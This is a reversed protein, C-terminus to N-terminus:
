DGPYPPDALTRVYAVVDWIQQDNLTGGWPAMLPSKGVAAGGQQIVKVLHETSLTNMYAGDCHLAPQPNLSASLAGGGCGKPGHCSACYQQYLANGATQDGAQAAPPTESGATAPGADPAAPPAAAPAPREPSAQTQEPAAGPPTTSEGGCGPGSIAVAFVLAAWKWGM